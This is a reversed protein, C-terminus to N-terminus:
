DSIQVYQIDKDIYPKMRPSIAQPTVLDVQKKFLSELYTATGFFNKYTKKGPDFEVVMDIDSEPTADARVSSGFLGIRSVGFQRLASKQQELTSTILQSTTMM